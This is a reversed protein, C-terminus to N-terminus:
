AAVAGQDCAERLAVRARVLHRNVARYTSGTIAMIEQYSHGGILLELVQRQRPRLDAVAELARRATIAATDDCVPGATDLMGHPTGAPDSITTERCDKRHIRIAERTATVILWGLLTERDPQYRLMALWASACGDEIAADSARVRRRVHSLLRQHYRAFLDAEDGRPPPTTAPGTM